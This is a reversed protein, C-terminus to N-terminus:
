IVRANDGSIIESFKVKINIFKKEFFKYSLSSLCITILFVVCYIIINQFILNTKFISNKVIKLVILIAIPHYMYIGYSIKGLYNLVRNDLQIITNSNSSINLIILCFLVSYLEMNFYRFSVGSLLLITVLIYLLIQFINTFIIKTFYKRESFIIYAGVGGIAMCDIRTLAIIESIIQLNKITVPDTETRKFFSIIIVASVYFFIVFLLLKLTNRFYKILIPWILYFQEEVGISWIQSSFLVPYFVVAVINPLFFLYLLIKEFLNSFTNETWGKLYFFDFRNLCCLTLFIIFFYLPWIRLIRRMYFKKVNIKNTIKKETLLLYTILFGSLVFFFTVGLGGIIGFFNNGM